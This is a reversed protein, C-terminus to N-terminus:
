KERCKENRVKKRPFVLLFLIWGLIWPLNKFGYKLAECCFDVSCPNPRDRDLLRKRGRESSRDRCWQRRQRCSRDTRRGTHRDRDAKGRRKTEDRRTEEFSKEDQRKKSGEWRKKGRRKQAESSRDEPCNRARRSDEWGAQRQREIASERQTSINGHQWKNDNANM